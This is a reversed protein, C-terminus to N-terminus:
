KSATTNMRPRTSAPRAISARARCWVAAAIRFSACIAGAAAQTRRPSSHTLTATSATAGPSRSSTFGASRIGTSPTTSAPLEATSSDISVPSGIATAFPTPSRTAAPVNFPDPDSSNRAVATPAPVISPCITRMVRSACALRAGNCRKASRILPIKTGTTTVIAPTVNPTHSHTPPPAPAASCAATATNIIAQGHAIPSATGAATITAVPRAAPNPTNNLPPSAISRSARTSTATSSM